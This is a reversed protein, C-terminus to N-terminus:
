TADRQPEGGPASKIARQTAGWGLWQSLRKIWFWGALAFLLNSGAVLLAALVPSVGVTILGLVASLLLALWASVLLLATFVGVIAIRVLMTVTLRTELTVLELYDHAADRVEAVLRSMDRKLVGFSAQAAVNPTTQPRDDPLSM